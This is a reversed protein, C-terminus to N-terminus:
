LMGQIDPDREIVSVDKFEGVLVQIVIGLVNLVPEHGRVVSYVNYMHKYTATCM